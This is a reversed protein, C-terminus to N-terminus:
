LGYSEVEMEIDSEAALSGKIATAAVTEPSGLIIFSNSNGMRGKFNRNATSLVYEGDGPIGLHTGICAGCGPPTIVAGAEIFIQIYGLEISKSYVERSGPTINLRISPHVKKGKLIRSAAEMDSLRGNTCTGLFCIDVRKGSVERLSAINELSHPLAVLPELSSLDFTHEAIYNAHEDSWIGEPIHGMREALYRQCVEDMPMIACKGGMEIAMNCLTFREDMNLSKLGDGSIELCMNTAGNVGIARIMELALDKASVYPPLSGRLNVKISEPVRVWAQGTYMGTTIDTSGMGTGFCNLAGYTVTHSDSGIVFDGPKVMGKEPLLVHSVGEGSDFLKINADEAFQRMIQQLNAAGQNPAPGCHDIVLIVKEHDFVKSTGLEEKLMKIALPANGDQAMILDLDAIVIDGAVADKHSKNSIIKEIATKGM